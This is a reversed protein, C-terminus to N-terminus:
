VLDRAVLEEAIQVTNLAAGKLLNDGTVWFNLAHPDHLDVRVRGVATENRGAFELPTPASTAM